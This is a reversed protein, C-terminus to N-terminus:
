SQVARSVALNPLAGHFASSHLNGLGGFVAVLVHEPEHVLHVHGDRVRGVAELRERHRAPWHDIPYRAFSWLKQQVDEINPYEAAIKASWIPNIGVLVQSWAQQPPFGNAGPYAISMGIIQLFDDATECINDVMNMTGMTGFVTIANGTVDGYREALPAWPSKEEWEGVVIGSVRGPQGFMSESTVGIVQGAVNRMTLRVARGIAPAAGAVGGLCGSKFPIDLEHRQPGNVILMPVVSATTTNVARLDFGPDACAEIAAFILELSEKPAGAMVANVVAKEVTCHAESPPLVGLVQQPDRKTAALYEIVLEETPPILPLGDGWGSDLSWQTFARIDGDVKHRASSLTV